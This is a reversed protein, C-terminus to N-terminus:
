AEIQLRSQSINRHIFSPAEENSRGGDSDPLCSRSDVNACNRYAANMKDFLFHPCFNLFKHNKKLYKLSGAPASCVESSTASGNVTVTAVSIIASPSVPVSVFNAKVDFSLKLM